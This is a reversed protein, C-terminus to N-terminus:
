DIYKIGYDLTGKLYKLVGKVANWHSELPKDMFQSLVSVYYAINPRTTTIYNLSGVMQRYVTDNVEKSGDNCYLKM